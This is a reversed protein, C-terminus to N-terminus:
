AAVVVPPHCVSCIWEGWAAWRWDVRHCNSCTRGYGGPPEVTVQDWAGQDSIDLHDDKTAIAPAAFTVPLVNESIDDQDNLVQGCESCIRRTIIAADPHDPCKRVRKGGWDPREPTETSAAKLMAVVDGPYRPTLHTTSRIEGSDTQTRTVRKVFLGGPAAHTGITSGVSQPSTGTREAIAARYVTYPAESGTSAKWGTDNFIAALHLKEAPRLNPNRDLAARASIQAKLQRIEAKTARITDAILKNFAAPGHAALYDDVGQKEGNPGSPLRIVYADAGRHELFNIALDDEALRVNPNTVADSDFVVFGRRGELSPLIPEWDPILEHGKQWNWVGTIGIVCKGITALADAKKIGETIFLDVSPDLIAAQCRKPVDLCNPKGAQAEYKCPKGDRIRPKDPKLAYRGNSGDPGHLPILLGPLAQWDAFGLRQLERPDTVTRYERDAIVEAAIASAESLERLHREALATHDPRNSSRTEDM